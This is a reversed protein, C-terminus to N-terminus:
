KFISKGTLIISEEVVVGIEGSRGVMSHYTIFASHFFFKDIAVLLLVGIKSGSILQYDFCICFEAYEIFRFKKIYM